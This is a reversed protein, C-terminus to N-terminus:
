KIQRADANTPPNISELSVFSKFRGATVAYKTAPNSSPGKTSPLNFIGPKPNWLKSCTSSSPIIVSVAKPNIANVMPLSNRNDCSLVMPFLAIVIPMRCATIVVATTSTTRIIRCRHKGSIIEIEQAMVNPAIAEAVAGAAVKITTRWYLASPGKVFSSISTTAMSSATPSTSNLTDKPM